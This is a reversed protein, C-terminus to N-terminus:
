RGKASGTGKGATNELRLYHRGEGRVELKVVYRVKVRDDYSVTVTATAPGKRLQVFHPQGKRAGIGERYFFRARTVLSGQQAVVTDIVRVRQSRALRDFRYYLEVKLPWGSWVHHGYIAAALLGVVLVM